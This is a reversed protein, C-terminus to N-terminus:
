ATQRRVRSFVFGGVAILFVVMVGLGIGSVAPVPVAEPFVMITWVLTCGDTAFMMDDDVLRKAQLKVTILGTEVPTVWSGAVVERPYGPLAVVRVGGAPANPGIVPRIMSPAASISSSYGGLSWTIFATGAPVSITKESDPIDVWEDSTTFFIPNDVYVHDVFPEDAVVGQGAFLVFAVSTLTVCRSM